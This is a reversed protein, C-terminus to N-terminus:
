TKTSQIYSMTRQIPICVWKFQEIFNFIMCIEGLINDILQICGMIKSQINRGNKDEMQLHYQISDTSLTKPTGEGWKLKLNQHSFAVCELRPPDPPLPKTKLKIMHSFPGAGLSNLAQIRIRYTTDPQLNNIIYSTVKGV